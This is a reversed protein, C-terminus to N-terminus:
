QKRPENMWVLGTGWKAQVMLSRRGAALWHFAGGCSIQALVNNWPQRGLPQGVDHMVVLGTCLPTYNLLDQGVGRPDHCGDILLVDIKRGDLIKRVAAITDNNASWHPIIISTFRELRMREHASTLSAVNEDVNEPFSAGPMDVTLLTAGTEMLRGFWMLSGGALGGIELYVQRRSLAEIHPQIISLEWPDFLPQPETM